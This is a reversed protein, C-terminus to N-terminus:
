PTSSSRRWRRAWAPCPGAAAGLRNLATAADHLVAPDREKLAAILVPLGTKLDGARCLAFAAGVRVRPNPDDLGKVPPQPGPAPPPAAGAKIQKVAVAV